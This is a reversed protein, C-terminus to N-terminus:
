GPVTHMNSCSRNRRWLSRRWRYPFGSVVRGSCPTSRARHASASGAASDHHVSFGSHFTLFSVHTARMAVIRRSSRGAHSLLWRSCEHRHSARGDRYESAFHPSGPSSRSDLGGGHRRNRRCNPLGAGGVFTAAFMVAIIVIAQWTRMPIPSQIARRCARAPAIGCPPCKM